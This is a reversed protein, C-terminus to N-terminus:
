KWKANLMLELAIAQNKGYNAVNTKLDQKFNFGMQKILEHPEVGEIMPYEYTNNVIHQQADKTLLFELLKIANDKNPAYKLIGGGSINMHTGRDGQNPFFPLVKKAAAQQEAGKSGSLM